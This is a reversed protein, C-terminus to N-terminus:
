MMNKDDEDFDMEVVELKSFDLVMIPFGVVITAVYAIVRSVMILPTALFYRLPNVQIENNM